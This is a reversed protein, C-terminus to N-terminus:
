FFPKSVVTSKSEYCKHLPKLVFSVVPFIIHELDQYIKLVLYYYFFHQVHIQEFSQGDTSRSYTEASASDSIISFLINTKEGKQPLIKIIPYKWTCEKKDRQQRLVPNRQNKWKLCPKKQFYFVNFLPPKVTM